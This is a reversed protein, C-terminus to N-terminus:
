QVYGLARLREITQRDLGEFPSAEEEGSPLQGERRQIEALLITELEEGVDPHVELVDTREEPDNVVDYLRRSGDKFDIRLKWSDTRLGWQKGSNSVAFRFRDEATGNVVPVLDEGEIGQPIDLGVLSLITPFLASNEVLRTVKQGADLVGPFRLILPVRISADYVDAHRFFPEHDGMNEGHDATFVILTRDLVGADTLFGLLRGVKADVAAIEADYLAVQRRLTDPDRGMELWLSGHYTEAEGLFRSRYPELPEYPDHPDLLHLFLFFPRHSNERLWKGASLITIDEGRGSQSLLKDLIEKASLTQLLM